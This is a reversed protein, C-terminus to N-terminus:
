ENEAQRRGISSGAAHRVLAKRLASTRDGEVVWATFSAPCQRAVAEAQEPTATELFVCNGNGSLRASGYAGLWDLAAAIRPYRARVIPEFTNDLTEGSAFSSITAPAAFRTLEDARLNESTQIQVGTDLMVYWRRPLTITKFHQGVGTVWACRGHVFVPMDGDLASALNSLEDESLGGQWLHHLAVLVTAALSSCQGLEMTVPLRREVEIDVGCDVALHERLRMAARMLLVNPGIVEGGSKAHIEGDARARVRIEDSWDLFRVVSQWGAEDDEREGIVRLFLHLKAPAPWAMWGHALDPLLERSMFIRLDDPFGNERDLERAYAYAPSQKDGVVFGRKSYFPANWSVDALTALDMRQYGAACAWACAHELLASGIGRGHCAPLVDIEAVNIVPEASEAALWVFGLADGSEGDLAVWVLGRLIDLALQEPPISMAAYFSWARHRRFMQVAAREIACLAEVQAITAREIHFSM